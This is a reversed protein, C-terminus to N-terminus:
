QGSNSQSMQLIVTNNFGNRLVRLLSDVSTGLSKLRNLLSTTFKLVACRYTTYVDLELEGRLYFIRPFFDKAFLILLVIFTARVSEFQGSAAM